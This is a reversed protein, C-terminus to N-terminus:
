GEIPSIDSPIAGIPDPGSFDLNLSIKLDALDRLLQWDLADHADIGNAFLHAFFSLEVGSDSLGILYDRHPKLREVASRLGDPLSTEQRLDFEFSCRSKPYFGGLALGKSSIRPAGKNWLYKFKLGLKVPVDSLDADSHAVWLKMTYIYGDM